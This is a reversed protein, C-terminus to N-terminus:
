SQLYMHCVTQPCRSVSSFSSFVLFFLLIWLIIPQLLQRCSYSTTLEVKHTEDCCTQSNIRKEFEQAPIWAWIRTNLVERAYTLIVSLFSTLITFLQFATPRFIITKSIMLQHGYEHYSRFTTMKCIFRGWRIGFQFNPQRVFFM